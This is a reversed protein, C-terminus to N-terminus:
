ARAYALVKRRLLNWNKVAHKFESRADAIQDQLVRMELQVFGPKFNDKVLKQYDDRLKSLNKFATESQVKLESLMQSYRSSILDFNANALKRQMRKEKMQMRKRVIIEEHITKLNSTMGVLSLGKILWKSPDWDWVRVGNRYDSPFEHHYNHYGEGFTLFAAFWNDRATHSDSYTQKGWCHALSNILFTSHHNIVARTVGAVFVGGWFDGWALAILGPFAFAVFAGLPIWIKNQLVVWPDKLLDGAKSEKDAHYDNKVLLWLFHAWLFGRNISYPDKENDDVYNHHDRHDLSWSLASGQYAAAGFILYFLKVPLAANYTRHSFYRHYGATISLEVLCFLIFGLIITGWNFSGSKVWLICAPVAIIPSLILFLAVPWNIKEIKKIM